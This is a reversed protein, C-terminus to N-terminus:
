SYYHEMFINKWDWWSRVCLFFGASGNLVCNTIRDFVNKQDPNLQSVLSSAHMSLMLPETDLENNILRNDYLGYTQITLSPLGYMAINGGCNAFMDTLKLILINMLQEHPVAYGPNGLANVLGKRIDDTLYLWYKDFLARVNGVSCYLVVTVFLYRLQYSSASVIAEDFLLIWENDSELLGRAECAERYTNYVRGNFTRVGAYNTAGKVIMVLM